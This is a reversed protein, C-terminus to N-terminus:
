HIQKLLFTSFLPQAACLTVWFLWAAGSVGISATRRIGTAASVGSSLLILYLVSAVNVQNLLATLAPNSGTNLILSDLGRNVPNLDAATEIRDLGRAHVVLLNMLSVLIIISESYVAIPFFRKLSIDRRDLLMRCLWTLGASLVIWRVVKAAPEILLEIVIMSRMMAGAATSGPNGGFSREYIKRLPQEIAPIMFWSILMALAIVVGFAIKWRASEAVQTFVERPSALVLFVNLFEERPNM